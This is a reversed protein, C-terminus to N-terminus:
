RTMRHIVLLLVILAVTMEIRIVEKRPATAGRPPQRRRSKQLHAM